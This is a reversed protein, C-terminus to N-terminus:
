VVVAFYINTTNLKMHCCRCSWSRKDNQTNCEEKFAIAIDARCLLVLCSIIYLFSLESHSLIRLKRFVLKRNKLVFSNSTPMCLIKYLSIVCM